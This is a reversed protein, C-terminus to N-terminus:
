QEGDKWGVAAFHPNKFQGPGDGESGFVKLAELHKGELKGEELRRQYVDLLAAERVLGSPRLINKLDQTRMKGLEILGVLSDVDGNGCVLGGNVKAWRAVYKFGEVVRGPWRVLFAELVVRAAGCSVGRLSEEGIVSLGEDAARKKCAEVLEELFGGRWGM